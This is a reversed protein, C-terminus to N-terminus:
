DPKGYIEDYFPLEEGLSRALGDLGPFLVTSSVNMRKLTKIAEVKKINDFHLYLKFVNKRLHWGKMSKLNERFPRRVDGAFLFVGQHATLRESLFYPNDHAVLQPRRESVTDFLIRRKGDPALDFAASGIARECHSNLWDTDFCWIVQRRQRSLGERLATQAAVFPSYSCDLLRTPAGHHRMLALCTLMDDQIFPQEEGRVRRRFERALERELSPAHSLKLAWSKIQRELTSQLPWDDAQGRYLWRGVKM